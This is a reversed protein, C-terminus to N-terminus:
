IRGHGNPASDHYPTVGFEARYLRSFHSASSFGTALSVQIVSMDTTVLLNRARELRLKKYLRKPSEGVCTRFVREIQRVSVGLQEAIHSIAVPEEINSLMQDMAGLFIRNRTGYRIHNPMRQVDGETRVLPFVLQDAIRQSFEAGHTQAVLNLMLEAGSTGGSATYPRSRSFFADHTLEIDPFAERFVPYYEWHVACTKRLLLGAKALVYAGSCVAGIEVGHRSQQRLYSILDKNCHREAELGSVVYLEAGSRLQCLDSDVLTVLGNSSTQSGGDSAMLRWRYLEKQSLLNAM